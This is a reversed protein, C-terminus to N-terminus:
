ILRDAWVHGPHLKELASQLWHKAESTLLPLCNAFDLEDKAACRKAKYLLVIEPALFPIGDSSIGVADSRKRVIESSRRYIWLSEDGPDLFIDLKWAQEFKDLVWVQHANEPPLTDEPLFKLEGNSATFLVAESLMSRFAEFDHRLVVIELDAHSRTQQGIWLDIAWGGAVWWGRDVDTLAVAVEQPSWPHWAEIGPITQM